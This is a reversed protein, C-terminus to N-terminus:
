DDEFIYGASRVSKFYIPNSPDPEFYKRMRMIFNDITRTETEVDMKWVNKLLEKRSVIKGKHEIFYKLILAEHPTLQINNEASSCTLNEFNILYEGLQYNILAPTEDYWMKRRLMGKVRLLLEELHFPKTLYDDAGLKLGLIRDAASRRATLILIPLKPYIERIKHTIEFGNVYPLMIDLIVLDFYHTDLYELAQHGERAWVIEYGEEEFNYLLGKALSEEDEVLLIRKCESKQSATQVM